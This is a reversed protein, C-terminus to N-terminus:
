VVCMLCLLRIETNWDPNSVAIGVISCGCVFTKSRLVVPINNRELEYNWARYNSRREREFSFENIKRLNNRAGEREKLAPVYM